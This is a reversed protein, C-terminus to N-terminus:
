YLGRQLRYKRVKRLLTGTIQMLLAEEIGEWFQCFLYLIFLSPSLAWIDMTLRRILPISTRINELYHMGAFPGRPFAVKIHWVGLHYDKIQVNNAYDLLKDTPEKKLDGDDLLAQKAEALELTKSM